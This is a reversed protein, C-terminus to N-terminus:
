QARCIWTRTSRSREKELYLRLHRAPNPTGKHLAFELDLGVKTLEVFEKHLASTEWKAMTPKGAAYVTATFVAM